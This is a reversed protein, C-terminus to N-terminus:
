FLNIVDRINIIIMLAFLLFIGVTHIMNEVEPKVKKRTIAEIGLFFLRGGDLAPFPILNFFGLSFSIAGMLYIINVLTAGFGGSQTAVTDVTEYIGVLGSLNSFDGLFLNGLARCMEGTYYGMFHWAGWIASFANYEYVTYNQALGIKTIALNVSEKGNEDVPYYAVREVEITKLINKESVDQYTIRLTQVEDKENPAKENLAKTIDAYKKITYTTYQTEEGVKTEIVTIIDDTEMGKISLISQEEQTNVIAVDNTRHPASFGGNAALFVYFCVLALIMNMIGGAAMVLARKGVSKNALIRDSPVPKNNNDLVVEDEGVGEEGAMKVFGGLTIARLCFHTEHKTNKYLIPGFGIAYEYCYVNCKKATILHGLEHWAILFAIIFVFLIITLINSFDFAFLIM